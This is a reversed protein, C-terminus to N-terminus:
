YERTGINIPIWFSFFSQHPFGGTVSMPKVAPIRGCWTRRHRVLLDGPWKLLCACKIQGLAWIVKRSSQKLCGLFRCRKDATGSRNRAYSKWTTNPMKNKPLRCQTITKRVYSKTEPSCLVVVPARQWFAQGPRDPEVDGADRHAGLRRHHDRVRRSTRRVPKARPSESAGSIRFSSRSGDRSRLM